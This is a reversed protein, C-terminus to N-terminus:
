DGSGIDILMLDQILENVTRDHHRIGELVRRTRDRLHPDGLQKSEAYLMADSVLRRLESLIRRHDERTDDLQRTVRPFRQRLELLLGEEETLFHRSIKDHLDVLQRSLNGAWRHAKENGQEPRPHELFASLERGLNLLERHQELAKRMADGGSPQTMQDTEQESLPRDQFFPLRATEV